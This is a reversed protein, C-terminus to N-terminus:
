HIFSLFQRFKAFTQNSFYTLLVPIFNHEEGIPSSSSSSSSSNVSASTARPSKAAALAGTLLSARERSPQNAQKQRTGVCVRYAGFCLMGCPYLSLSSPTSSKNKKPVGALSLSNPPGRIVSVCCWRVCNASGFAGVVQATHAPIARLIGGEKPSAAPYSHVEFLLSLSPLSFIFACLACLTFM